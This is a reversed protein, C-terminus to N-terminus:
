PLEGVLNIVKEARHYLADDPRHTICSLLLPICVPCELVKEM